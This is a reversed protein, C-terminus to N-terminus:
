GESSKSSAGSIEGWEVVVDFGSDVEIKQKEIYGRKQGITKLFFITATMNGDRIAKFLQQEAEDLRTERVEELLDKAEPYREFYKYVTTRSVGLKRSVNTVFGDSDNVAEILKSKTVRAV